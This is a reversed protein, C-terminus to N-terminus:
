HLGAVRFQWNLIWLLLFIRWETPQWKAISVEAHASPFPFFLKRWFTRSLLFILARLEKLIENNNLQQNSNVLLRLASHFFLERFALCFLMENASRNVKINLYRPALSFAFVLLTNWGRLKTARARSAHPFTTPSRSSALSYTAAAQRVDDDDKDAQEPRLWLWCSLWRLLLKRNFREEGGRFRFLSCLYLWFVRALCKHAASLLFFLLTSSRFSLFLSIEWKNDYFIGGAIVM